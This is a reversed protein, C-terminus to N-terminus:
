DCEDAATTGPYQEHRQHPHCAIQRLLGVGTWSCPDSVIRNSEWAPFLCKTTELTAIRKDVGVMEGLRIVFVPLKFGLVEFAAALLHALSPVQSNPIYKRSSVLLVSHLEALYNGADNDV